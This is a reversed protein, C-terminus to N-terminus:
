GPLCRMIGACRSWKMQLVKMGWIRSIEKDKMNLILIGRMAAPRLINSRIKMISVHKRMAARSEPIETMDYFKGHISLIYPIIDVIDEPRSISEHVALREMSTITMEGDPYKEHALNVLDDFSLKDRNEVIFDVEEPYKANRREYDVTVKSAKHQFIGFDPVLGVFPSGTKEKLDIIQQVLRFDRVASM